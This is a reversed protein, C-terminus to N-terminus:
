RWTYSIKDSQRSTNTTPITGSFQILQGTPSAMSQIILNHEKALDLEITGSIDSPMFGPISKM